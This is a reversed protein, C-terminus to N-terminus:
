DHLHLRESLKSRLLGRPDITAKIRKFEVLQPYMKPILDPNVMADKAFYIRLTESGTNQAFLAGTVPFALTFLLKKM